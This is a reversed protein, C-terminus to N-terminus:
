KDRRDDLFILKERGPIPKYEKSGISYYKKSGASTEYFTKKGASLFDYVWQAPKYGMAEMKKVTEGVGFVDWMEFPGLEWGFGASLADDILYLDYAIEPIRNSIYQFLNYFSHRYFEGAKDQSNILLRLRDKLDDIAKA